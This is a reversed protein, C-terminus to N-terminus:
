TSIKEKKNDKYFMILLYMVHILMKSKRKDLPAIMDEKEKKESLKSGMVQMPDRKNEHCNDKKKPLSPFVFTPDYCLPGGCGQPGLGLILLVRNRKHKSNVIGRKDKSKTIGAV